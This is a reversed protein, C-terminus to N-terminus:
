IGAWILYAWTLAPLIVLACKFAFIERRTYIIHPHRNAIFLGLSALGVAALLAYLFITLPQMAVAAGFDGHLLLLTARTSGCTLCPISFTTKMACQGFNAWGQEVLWGGMPMAFLPLMWLAGWPVQGPQRTQIAIKM